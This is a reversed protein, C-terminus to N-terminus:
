GLGKQVTVMDRSRQLTAVNANLPIVYRSLSLDNTNTSYDKVLPSQLEIPIDVICYVIWLRHLLSSERYM